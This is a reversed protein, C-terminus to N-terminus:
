RIMKMVMGLSPRSPCAACPPAGSRPRPFFSWVLYTAAGALAAAVIISDLIM